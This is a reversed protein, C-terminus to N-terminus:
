PFRLSTSVVRHSFDYLDRKFRVETGNEALTASLLSSRERRVSCSSRLHQSAGSDTAMAPPTALLVCGAVNAANLAVKTLLQSPPIVLERLQSPESLLARGTALMEELLELM